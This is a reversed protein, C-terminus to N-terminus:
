NCCGPACCAAPKKAFVTISYIGTKSTRFTTIETASLYTSLIDDPIIIEKEKQVIINEFGNTKILGLYEEKQIAGSICGAYM